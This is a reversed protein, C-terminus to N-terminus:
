EKKWLLRILVVKVVDNFLFTVIISIVLVTLVPLPEIPALGPIGLISIATVLLLDAVIATLL